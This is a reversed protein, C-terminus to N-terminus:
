LETTPHGTSVSIFRARGNASGLKAVDIDKGGGVGLVVSPKVKRMRDEVLRVQDLTAREVIMHEVSLGAGVLSKVTERGAVEYTKEGAVVLASETLGLRLCTEGLLALTGSGVLVERPLQMYHPQSLM